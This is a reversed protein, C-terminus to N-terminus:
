VTIMLKRAECLLSGSVVRGYRTFRTLLSERTEQGKVLRGVFIAARDIYRVDGSSM